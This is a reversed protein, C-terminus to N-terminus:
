AAHEEDSGAPMNFFDNATVKGETADFIKGATERSPWVRGNKLRNVMERSIGAEAAFQAETKCHTSLFDSLKMLAIHTHHVHMDLM